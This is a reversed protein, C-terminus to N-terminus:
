VMFKERHEAVDGAALVRPHSTKLYDDVVIGRNVKLGSEAALEVRPRVGSAIIVAGAPKIEGDKFRVGSVSGEGIIEEAVRGLLFNIKTEELKRRLLSAAEQDLQRPLLRDYVEVVTVKELGRTRLARAIELGLLGGGLIVVEPRSQLYDILSLAEDLTRFYFVGSKGLGKLPPVWPVSGTTLVLYDFPLSEGGELTVQQKELDLKLLRRNLHLEIKQRVVWDPPFAFVKELPLLGALFDIMNPRPYYHHREESFIKIEASSDLERVTKAVMTGALGNGAIVIRM